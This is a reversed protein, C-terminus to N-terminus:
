KELIQFVEALSSLLDGAIVSRDTGLTDASKLGCQAHIWAGIAASEFGEVGQARLGVIIGALVDGSGATSLAPTAIPVVATRGGPESIVTNAGKLVIIHGWKSAYNEAISVRAAQIESVTLGTLEAMEGPHPTLIVNPPLKKPWDAIKALAKLGDADIVLPPLEIKESSEFGTTSTVFGIGMRGGHRSPDFLDELFNRTTDELGFGPGLLMATAKGLNEIVVEAAGEAIVGMEHPLLIWTAEPIHGALAGHLLSPVGLTVLGVGARYAAQGSLLVAGTYNVSGAIIFATGFTGKHAHRERIPLKSRVWEEDVVMRSIGQWTKSRYDQDELGIGVLILEGLLNNAPFELLGRKVAAMTVTLDAPLCEPSAEGTDSDVGSPCDVAVINPRQDMRNIAKKTFELTEKVSGRLPLKIGTGLIGDMLIGHEALASKLNKFKKDDASDLIMGGRSVLREILPDDKPRTRVIYASAKWGWESMIALAVLTDGGNNGSGVLGLVGMDKLSAFKDAITKALGSGANEMMESYTLGNADAEREVSLMEETSVLKV